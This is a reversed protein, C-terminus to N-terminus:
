GRGFRGKLKRKLDGCSYINYIHETIDYSAITNALTEYSSGAGVVYVEIGSRHVEVAERATTAM